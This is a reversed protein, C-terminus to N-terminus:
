RCDLLNQEVQNIVGAFVRTLSGVFPNVQYESALRPLHCDNDAIVPRANRCRAASLEELRKGFRHV